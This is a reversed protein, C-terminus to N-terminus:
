EIRMSQPAFTVRVKAWQAYKEPPLKYGYTGCRIIARRAAEFAQRVATDGGEGASLRVSTAMPVGDPTMDMDLTVTAARAAEDLAGTNWCVAVDQLFQGREAESLGGAALATGTLPVFILWLGSVLSFCRSM